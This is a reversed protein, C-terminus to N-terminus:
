EKDRCPKKERYLKLHGELTQKLEKDIDEPPFDLAIAIAKEQWKVAEEFDGNEAYAAALTDLYRANRYDTLECAKKAYEVAAKGDRTTEKACTCLLWALENCNEANKPELRIAEKYDQVAKDKQYDAFYLKARCNYASANGPELEIFKSYDSISEKLRNKRWFCYGRYLLAESNRPEVKIVESYDAIAKDFEDSHYYLEAREKFIELSKVGNQIAKSLGEVAEKKKDTAALIKCRYLYADKTLPDLRICEDFDAIAKDTDGKRAFM